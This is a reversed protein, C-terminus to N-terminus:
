TTTQRLNTVLIYSSVVLIWLPFALSAWQGLGAGIILTLALGYGLYSIWKPFVHTRIGITSTSFMFVAAMRMTFTHMLQYSLLRGFSYLQTGIFSTPDTGYLSLTAAAVAASAFLMALFLLGSGLLVTAFFRDEYAGLRDRVVGLFWLFAIGAFPILQLALMVTSRGQEIWPGVNTPDAPVALALLVLSTSLLVAFVIGAIAAARPTTLLPRDLAKPDFSM